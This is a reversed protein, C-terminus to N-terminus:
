DDFELNSVKCVVYGLKFTSVWILKGTKLNKTKFDIINKEPKLRDPIKSLILHERYHDLNELYDVIDRPSSGFHNLYIRDNVELDMLAKIEIQKRPKRM